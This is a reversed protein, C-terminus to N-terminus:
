APSKHSGGPKIVAAIVAAALVAAVVTEITGAIMFDRPFGYWNWYPVLLSLSGVLGVAAAILLRKFYSGPVCLLILGILLGRIVDTVAQIALGTALPKGKQKYVVLGIPGVAAAQQYRNMEEETARDGEAHTGPYLYLGDGPLALKLTMKVGEEKLSAMESTGM